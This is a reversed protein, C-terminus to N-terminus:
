FLQKAWNTLKKIPNVKDKGIDMLEDFVITEKNDSSEEKKNDRYQSRSRQAKKM